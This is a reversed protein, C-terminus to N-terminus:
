RDREVIFVALQSLAQRIEENPLADLAQQGERVFRRAEDMAEGIAPSDRIEEVLADMDLEDRPRGNLLARLTEHDPHAKMFYLTPLTLLGRRLDDGVPKGLQEPSSVFDFVDDVIQFAMGLTHGFHRMAAVAQESAQGLMAAAESCVAFLSATKASIRRYYDELRENASISGFLQSIEGNVITMLARAFLRMVPIHETRAALSAARAFLFDGTLITASPSWMANLTPHGRRLLSGDIVDDHVLTATHLLEIAAALAVARESPAEFAKAVLLALAPRVRKGGGSLLHNTAETIASHQNPEAERLLSEVQGLDEQVPAFLAQLTSVTM